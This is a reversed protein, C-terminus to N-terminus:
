ALERFAGISSLALVSNWFSAFQARGIMALFGEKSVPMQTPADLMVAMYYVTQATIFDVDKRGNRVREIEMLQWSDRLDRLQRLFSSPCNACLDIIRFLMAGAGFRHLLAHFDARVM